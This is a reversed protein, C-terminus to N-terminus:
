IVMGEFRHNLHFFLRYGDNLKGLFSDFVYRNPARM